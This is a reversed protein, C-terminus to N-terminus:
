GLKCREYEGEEGTPIDVTEVVKSLLDGIELM